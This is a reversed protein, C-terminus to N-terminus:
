PMRRFTFVQIMLLWLPIDPMAQILPVAGWLIFRGADTGMVRSAHALAFAGWARSPVNQWAALLPLLRTPIWWQKYELFDQYRKHRKVCTKLDLNVLRDADPHNDGTAGKRAWWRVGLLGLLLWPNWAYLAAFVPVREHVVGGILSVGIAVYPHSPFLRAAGLALAVGLLDPCTPATVCFVVGPLTAFLVVKQWTGLDWAVYLYGLWSLAILLRSPWYTFRRNFPAPQQRKSTYRRGDPCSRIGDQYLAVVAIGAALLLPTL